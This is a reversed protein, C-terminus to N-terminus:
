VFQMAIESINGTFNQGVTIRLVLYGGTNAISKTGITLGWDTNLDRGIGLSASRCGKGDTFMETEFDNYCDLWGTQSPAKLEVRCSNAVSSLLTTMPVFVVSNGKIKLIFNSTTPSVQRFYRCYTRDGIATMGGSYNRPGGYSGGNNFVPGNTINSTRFDGPININKGPYILQNKVVQLGNNYGVGGDKLSYYSNWTSSLFSNFNDFDLTSPLRRSESTFKEIYNTNLDSSNDLLIDNITAALSATTAQVTRKVTCFTSVPEKVLLSSNITATTNISITQTIGSTNVPIAQSAISCGNSSNFSIADNDLNYTNKYANSIIVSYPATGTRYFAIGSLYNLSPSFTLAGFTPTNFTTATTDRDVVIDFANLTKIEGLSVIHKVQIKNYGSRLSNKIVVWSGIRHKIGDFSAGSSFHASSSASVYLGTQTGGLTTDVALSSNALNINAVEIDNIYLVLNGKDAKSFSCAIYSPTPLTNSVPVDYNFLGSLKNGGNSTIGLRSGSLQFIGNLGIPNPIGNADAPSYNILPTSTSFSMKGSVKPTGSLENWSTLVPAAPPALALIIKNLESIADVSTSSEFNFLGDNWTGSSPLGLSSTLFPQIIWEGSPFDGNYQYLATDLNKSKITYGDTPAEFSWVPDNWTAIQNEYDSFDGMPQTGVLYKDGNSLLLSLPDNVVDIVSNNWTDSKSSGPTSATSEETEGKILSKLNIISDSPFDHLFYRYPIKLSVNTTQTFTYSTEIGSQTLYYFNVTFNTLDIYNIKGYVEFNNSFVKRNSAVKNILVINNGSFIIGDETENTSQKVALPNNKYGATAIITTLSSFVNVSSSNATVSFNPINIYGSLIRSIQKSQVSGEQM